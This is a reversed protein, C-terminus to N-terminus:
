RRDHGALREFTRGPCMPLVVSNDPHSMHYNQARVKREGSVDGIEILSLQGMM